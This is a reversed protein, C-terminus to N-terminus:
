GHKSDEIAESLSMRRGIAVAQEYGDTGLAQRVAGFLRDDIWTTYTPQVSAGVGDLLGDMAGRLRAARSFNGQAADAGALVGICWAIARRDGFARGIAIGEECLARADDHRGQVVRM